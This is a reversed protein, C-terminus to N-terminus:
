VFSWAQTPSATWFWTSMQAGAGAYGGPIDLSLSRDGKLLLQGDAPTVWQQKPDTVACPVNSLTASNTVASVALCTGDRNYLAGTTADLSWGQNAAAGDCAALVGGSGLCVNTGARPKLAKWARGVAAAPAATAVVAPSATPAPAAALAAVGSVTSPAASPATGPVAGPAAGPTPAATVSSDQVYAVSVVAPARSNVLKQAPLPVPSPSVIPAPLAAAMSATMTATAATALTAKQRKPRVFIYWLIAAAVTICVLIVVIIVASLM